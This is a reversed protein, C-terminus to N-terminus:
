FYLISIIHVATAAIMAFTLPMHFNLWVRLAKLKVWMFTLREKEMAISGLVTVDYVNQPPTKMKFSEFLKKQEELITREEKLLYSWKVGNHVFLPRIKEHYLLSFEKHSADVHKDAEVLYNAIKQEMEALPLTGRGYKHVSIPIIKYAISGMIGSFIVLSFLALLFISFFGGIEFGAHMAILAVSVIGIYIHAQFWSQLTGLRIRYVSKRLKYFSLFVILSCGIIGYALEFGTGGDASYYYFRFFVSVTLLGAILAFIAPWGSRLASRDDLIQSRAM